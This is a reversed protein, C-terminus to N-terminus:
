FIVALLIRTINKMEKDACLKYTRVSLCKYNYLLKSVLFM